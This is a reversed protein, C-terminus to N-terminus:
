HMCSPTPNTFVVWNLTQYLTSVLRKARYTSGSRSPACLVTTKATISARIQRAGKLRAALETESVPELTGVVRSDVPLLDSARLCNCVLSSTNSRALCGGGYLRSTRICDRRVESVYKCHHHRAKTRPQRKWPKKTQRLTRLQTRRQMRKKPAPM